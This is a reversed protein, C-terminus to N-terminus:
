SWGSRRCAGCRRRRPRRARCAWRVGVASVEIPHSMVRDGVGRTAFASSCAGSQRDWRAPGYSRGWRTASNWVRPEPSLTGLRTSTTAEGGTPSGESKLISALAAPNPSGTPFAGRGIASIRIYQRVQHQNGAGVRLPFFTRLLRRLCDVALDRAPAWHSQQIGEIAGHMIGAWDGQILAPLSDDTLSDQFAAV